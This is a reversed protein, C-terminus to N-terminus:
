RRLMTWCIRSFGDFFRRNTKKECIREVNTTRFRIACKSIRFRETDQDVYRSRRLFDYGVLFPGINKCCIFRGVSLLFAVYALNRVNLVNRRKMSMRYSTQWKLWMRKCSSYCGRYFGTTRKMISLVLQRSTKFRSM